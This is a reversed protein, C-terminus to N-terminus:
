TPMSSTTLVTCSNSLSAGTDVAGAAGVVFPKEAGSGVASVSGSGDIWGFGNDVGVGSTVGGCGIVICCGVAAKEVGAGVLTVFMAM